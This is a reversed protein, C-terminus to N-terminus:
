NTVIVASVEGKHGQLVTAQAADFGRWLYVNSDACATVIVPVDFVAASVGYLGDNHPLTARRQLPQPEVDFVCCSGDWSGTVVCGDSGANWLCCSVSHTPTESAEVAAVCHWHQQAASNEPQRVEGVFAPRGAGGSLYRDL